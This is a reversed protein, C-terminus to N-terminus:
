WDSVGCVVFPVLVLLRVQAVQPFLDVPAAGVVALALLDKRVDEGGGGDGAVTSRRVGEGVAGRRDRQTDIHTHTSCIALM